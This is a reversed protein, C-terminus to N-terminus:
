NSGWGGAPLYGLVAEHNLPALSLQELHNSCETRERREVHRQVAPLLLAMLIGIITIM